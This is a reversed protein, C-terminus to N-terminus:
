NRALSERNEEGAVFLRAFVAFNTPGFAELNIHQGTSPDELSLRGDAWRHLIFPPEVGVGLRKRERALGRMVGRAFGNTGGPLVEVVRGRTDSVQVAGDQRDAFHLARSQVMAAVPMHTVGIGSLRGAGAALISLAILGAAAILAARPFPRFQVAESM